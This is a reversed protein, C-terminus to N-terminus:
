KSFYERLFDERARVRSTYKAKFEDFQEIEQWKKEEALTSYILADLLTRTASEHKSLTCIAEYCDDRDDGCTEAEENKLFLKTM